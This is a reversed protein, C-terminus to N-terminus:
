SRFASLQVVNKDFSKSFEYDNGFHNQVQHIDLIQTRLVKGSQFYVVVEINIGKHSWAYGIALAPSWPDDSMRVDADVSTPKFNKGYRDVNKLAESSSLPERTLCLVDKWVESTLFKEFDKSFFETMSDKLAYINDM